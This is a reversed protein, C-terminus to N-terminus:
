EVAIEIRKNERHDEIEAITGKVDPNESLRVIEELDIGQEQLAEMAKQPILKAAIKLVTGPIRLTTDPNSSGGKFERIILDAM